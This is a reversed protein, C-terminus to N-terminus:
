QFRLIATPSPASTRREVVSCVPLISTPYVSTRTASHEGEQYVTPPGRRLKSAFQAMSGWSVRDSSLTRSKGLLLAILTKLDDLPLPCTLVSSARTVRWYVEVKTCKM